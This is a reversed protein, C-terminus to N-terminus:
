GFGHEMAQRTQFGKYPESTQQSWMFCSNTAFKAVGEVIGNKLGNSAGAMVILMFIGWFVGFATLLSRVKNKALAHWIENWRDLDFM